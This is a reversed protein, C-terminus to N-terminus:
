IRRIRFNGTYYFEKENKDEVEQLPPEEMDIMFYGDTIGRETDDILFQNDRLFLECFISYNEDDMDNIIVDYDYNARTFSEELVGNVSTTLIRNRKSPIKKLYGECVVTYNKIKSTLRVM